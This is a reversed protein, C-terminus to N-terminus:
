VKILKSSDKAYYGNDMTMKHADNKCYRPSGALTLDLCELNNQSM